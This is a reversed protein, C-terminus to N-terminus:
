VRYMYDCTYITSVGCSLICPGSLHSIPPEPSMDSHTRIFKINPDTRVMKKTSIGQGFLAILGLDM